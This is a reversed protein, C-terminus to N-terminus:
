FVWNRALDSILQLFVWSRKAIHEFHQRLVLPFSFLRARDTRILYRFHFSVRVDVNSCTIRCGRQSYICPVMSFRHFWYCRIRAALTSICVYMHMSHIQTFPVDCPCAPVKLHYTNVCPFISLWISYFFDRFRFWFVALSIYLTTIPNFM